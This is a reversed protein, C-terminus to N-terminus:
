LEQDYGDHYQDHLQTLGELCAMRKAAIPANGVGQCLPRNRLYLKCVSYNATGDDGVAVIDKATFGYKHCLEYFQRVPNMIMRESVLHTQIFPEILPRMCLWVADLDFATDVVLAGCLSEFVDGLIKPCEVPMANPHMNINDDTSCWKVFSDIDNTLSDLSHRIMKHLGLQVAFRGFTNNTVAAQRADTLMAPDADPLAHFLARTILWDLVSDGLFELRQYSATTASCFSPHTLAEM